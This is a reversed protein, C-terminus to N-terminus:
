GTQKRLSCLPLAAALEQQRPLWSAASVCVLPLTILAVLASCFSCHLLVIHFGVRPSALCGPESSRALTLALTWMCLDLTMVQDPELDRLMELLLLSLAFGSESHRRM